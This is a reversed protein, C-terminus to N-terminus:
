TANPLLDQIERELSQYSATKKKSASPTSPEGSSRKFSPLAFGLATLRDRDVAPKQAPLALVAETM